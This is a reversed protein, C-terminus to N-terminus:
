ARETLRQVISHQQREPQQIRAATDQAPTAPTRPSACYSLGPLVDASGVLFFLFADRCALTELMFTPPSQLRPHLM